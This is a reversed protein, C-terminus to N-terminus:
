VGSCAFWISLRTNFGFLDRDCGQPNGTLRLFRVQGVLSSREFLKTNGSPDCLDTASRGLNEPM